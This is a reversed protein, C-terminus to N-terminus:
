ELPYRDVCRKPDYFLKDDATLKAEGGQAEVINIVCNDPTKGHWFDSPDDYLKNLMARLACGHTSVLYTKGDDRRILENLFEQTRACVQAISEGGPFGEFTGAEMFFRRHDEEDLITGEVEGCNIEMIREDFEVETDENGSERLLLEATQRARILPSSICTDFHVDRLNRGTEAALDIGNQNLPEDTIGQMIGKANLNTEGHRIIYIQM